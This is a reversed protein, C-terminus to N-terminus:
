SLHADILAQLKEKYHDCKGLWDFRCAVTTGATEESVRVVEGLFYLPDDFGPVTIEVALYDGLKAKTDPSSFAMGGLSVNSTFGPVERGRKGCVGFRVKFSSKLRPYTRRDLVRGMKRKPKV